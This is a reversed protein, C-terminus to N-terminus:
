TPPDSIDRRMHSIHRLCMVYCFLMIIATLLLDDMERRFLSAYVLCAAAIAFCLQTKLSLWRLRFRDSPNPHSQGAAAQHQLARERLFVSAVTGVWGSGLAFFFPASNLCSNDMTIGLPILALFISSILDIVKLKQELGWNPAKAAMLLFHYLFFSASLLLMGNKYSPWKLFVCSGVITICVAIMQYNVKRIYKQFIDEEIAARTNIMQIIGLSFMISAIGANQAILQLGLFSFIHSIFFGGTFSYAIAIAFLRRQADSFRPIIKKM